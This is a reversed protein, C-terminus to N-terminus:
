AAPVTLHDEAFPVVFEPADAQLPWDPVVVVMVALVPDPDLEALFNLPQQTVMSTAM